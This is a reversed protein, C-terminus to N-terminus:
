RDDVGAPRPPGDVHQLVALKDGGVRQRLGEVGTLWGPGGARPVAGSREAPASPEQAQSSARRRPLYARCAAANRFIETVPAPHGGPSRTSRIHLRLPSCVIVVRWTAVFPASVASPEALRGNRVILRAASSARGPSVTITWPPSYRSHTRGRRPPSLAARGM